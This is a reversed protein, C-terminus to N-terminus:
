RWRAIAAISTLSAAVAGLLLVDIVVTPCEGAVIVCSAAVSM